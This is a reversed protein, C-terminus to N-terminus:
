QAKTPKAHAARDDRVVEHIISALVESFPRKNPNMHKRIHRQDEDTVPVAIRKNM